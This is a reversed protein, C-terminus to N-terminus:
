CLCAAIVLIADVEFDYNLEFGASNLAKPAQPRPLCLGLDVPM